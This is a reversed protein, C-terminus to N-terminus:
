KGEVTALIRNKEDDGVAGNGIRVFRYVGDYAGGLQREADDDDTRGNAFNPM